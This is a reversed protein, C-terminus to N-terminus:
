RIIIVKIAARSKVIETEVERNHSEFNIKVKESNDTQRETIM